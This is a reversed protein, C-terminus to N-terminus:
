SVTTTTINIKQGIKLKTPDITPNLAQISSISVGLTKGIKTFTDGSKIVYVSSDQNAHNNNSPVLTSINIKQGIKLKTPDVTPNLEQISSVSVGVEKGIKTFTDGRKIVYVSSGSNSHNNKSTVLTAINIKQGIKM